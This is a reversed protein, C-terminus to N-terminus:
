KIKKVNNKKVFYVVKSIDMLPSDAMSDTYFEDIISDKYYKNFLEVKKKGLCLYELEKNELDFKSCIIKETNLKDKIGDLLFSPCGTIILDDSSVLELFNPKLKKSNNMWFEEVYVEYSKIDVVENIIKQLFLEVEKFDIKNRKYKMLMSVAKPIYKILKPDKRSCFIAFDFLSEGDYITNDFDFVKM